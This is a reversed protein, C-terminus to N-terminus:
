GLNPTNDMDITGQRSIPEQLATFREELLAFLYTTEFIYKLLTKGEITAIVTWFPGQNRSVMWHLKCLILLVHEAIHTGFM